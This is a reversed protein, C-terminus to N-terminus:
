TNWSLSVYLSKGFNVIQCQRKHWSSQSTHRWMSSPMAATSPPHNSVEERGFCLECWCSSWLTGGSLSLSTPPWVQCSGQHSAWQFGKQFFWASGWCCVLWSLLVAWSLPSSLKSPSSHHNGQPATCSSARWLWPPWWVSPIGLLTNFHHSLWYVLWVNNTNEKQFFLSNHQFLIAPSLIIFNDNIKLPDEAPFDYTEVLLIARQQHTACYMTMM